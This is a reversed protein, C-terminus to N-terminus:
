IVIFRQPAVSDDGVVFQSIFANTEYDRAIWVHRQFTHVFGNEKPHVDVYHVEQGNFNVWFVSVLRSHANYFTVHRQALGPVSKISADFGGGVGDNSGAEGNARSQRELNSFLNKLSEHTAANANGDMIHEVKGVGVGDRSFDATIRVAEEDGNAAGHHKHFYTVLDEVSDLRVVKVRSRLGAQPIVMTGRLEGDSSQREAITSPAAGLAVCTPGQLSSCADRVDDLLEEALEEKPFAVHKAVIDELTLSPLPNHRAHMTMAGHQIIIEARSARATVCSAVLALLVVVPLRLAHRLTRTTTTTTTARAPNRVRAHRSM